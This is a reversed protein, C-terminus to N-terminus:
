LYLSDIFYSIWQRCSVLVSILFIYIRYLPLILVWMSLWGLILLSLLEPLILLCTLGKSTGIQMCSFFVFLRVFMYCVFLCTILLDLDLHTLFEPFFYDNEVLFYIPVYWDIPKLSLGTHLMELMHSYRHITKKSHLYALGSLIHRTFNRIVSETIAGCHERVYKNISGPHVYELYIYFRDEVQLCMVWLHKSPKSATM